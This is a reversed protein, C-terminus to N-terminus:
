DRLFFAPVQGQDRAAKALGERFEPHAISLLSRVREPVSLGKLNVVGWETAVYMIDTRPTTVITGPAFGPVIRSEVTGDPLTRTSPLCMFSKGGRSAYAGRVFQLQGGTGSVHRHGASESAAQGQLDVQTTSNVSVVRDNRQIVEPLNTRDVPWTELAENERVFEHLRASGGVFTFVMKGPATQKRAGTVFGAEFLEMLGDVLMETHVGLDRVGAERLAGCVANPLGGIGIQLCAGDGILGAVHRAMCLDSATPVPNKLEPAGVGETEIVHDVASEHVGNEPGYVWPLKPDVEVVVRRARELVAGLYTCAGSFNYYGRADRPCCKVVALDVPDLFRRYLDPAEGFNMPIYHAAGADHRRRDYASFHWNLWLFRDGVPDAELVARPRLTLAARIRVGELEAKRRALAHDFADPQALGFGYDVWDGSRM